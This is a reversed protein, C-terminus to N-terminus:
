FFFKLVSLSFPFFPPFFAPLLLSLFPSFSSSVFLHVGQFLSFLASLGQCPYWPPLSPVAGKKCTCSLLPHGVCILPQLLVPSRPPLQLPFARRCKRAQKPQLHRPFGKTHFDSLPTGTTVWPFETTWLFARFIHQFGIICDWVFFFEETTSWLSQGFILM